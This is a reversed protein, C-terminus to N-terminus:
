GREGMALRDCGLKSCGRWLKRDLREAATKMLALAQTYFAKVEEFDEDLNGTPYAMNVEAEEIPSLLRQPGLGPRAAAADQGGLRPDAGHELLLEVVPLNGRTAAWTPMDDGQNRSLTRGAAIACHLPRGRNRAAEPERDIMNPDAGPSNDLAARMAALKAAVPKDQLPEWFLPHRTQAVWNADPHPNGADRMQDLTSRSVFQPASAPPLSSSPPLGAPRHEQKQEATSM